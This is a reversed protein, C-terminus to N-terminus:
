RRGESISQRLLGIQISLLQALGNFLLNNEALAATEMDIDVNNGDNRMTTNEERNIVLLGQEDLSKVASLHKPNTKKIDTLPNVADALVKQFNVDLRKYGPTNENAINSSIATHRLSSGDLSKQILGFLQSKFM